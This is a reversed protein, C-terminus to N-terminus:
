DGTLSVGMLNIEHSAVMHLITPKETKLNTGEVTYYIQGDDYKFIEVIDGFVKEVTVLQGIKLNNKNM